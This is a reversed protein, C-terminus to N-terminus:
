QKEIDNPIDQSINILFHLLKIKTYRTSTTEKSVNKRWRVALCIAQLLPVSASCVSPLVNLSSEGFKPNTLFSFLVRTKV